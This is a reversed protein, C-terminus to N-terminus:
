HAALPAAPSRAEILHGVARNGITRQLGMIGDHFSACSSELAQTRCKYLSTATEPATGVSRKRIRKRSM